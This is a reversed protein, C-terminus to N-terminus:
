GAERWQWGGVWEGSGVGWEGIDLSWHGIVLSWEGKVLWDAKRGLERLTLM